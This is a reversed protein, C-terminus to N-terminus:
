PEIGRRELDLQLAELGRAFRMKCAAESAGVRRAIEAFSRGELLKLVVVERQGASLAAIAESLAAAIGPGYTDDALPELRLADLQAITQPRRSAVRARDVLRRQAVTYLWALVPPAGPKFDGIREAADAFVAQALDEAEEASDTRRRIYRLVQAYHRRFATGAPDDVM